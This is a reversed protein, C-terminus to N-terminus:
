FYFHGTKAKEAYFNYVYNELMGCSREATSHTDAMNIPCTVALPFDRLIAAKSNETLVVLTAHKSKLTCSHPSDHRYLPIIRKPDWHSFLFCVSHEKLRSVGHLTSIHFSARALSVKGHHHHHNHGDDYDDGRWLEPPEDSAEWRAPGSDLGPWTMHFKHHAFHCQPLNEGLVETEGALEGEVSQKVNM